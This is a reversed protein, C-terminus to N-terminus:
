AKRAAKREALLVRNAADLPQLIALDACGDKVKRWVEGNPVLGNERCWGALAANDARNQPDNISGFFETKRAEAAAAKEAAAKAERKERATKQRATEPKSPAEVTTTGNIAVTVKQDVVDEVLSRIAALDSKTITM